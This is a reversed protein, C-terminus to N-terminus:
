AQVEKPKYRYATAGKREVEDIYDQADRSLIWGDFEHRAFVLYVPEGGMGRLEELTLPQPNECEAKERLASIAVDVAEQQYDAECMGAYTDIEPYEIRNELVSIAEIENM